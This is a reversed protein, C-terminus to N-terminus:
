FTKYKVPAVGIRGVFAKAVLDNERLFAVFEQAKKEGAIHIQKPMDFIHYNGEVECVDDCKPTHTYGNEDLFGQIQDLYEQKVIDSLKLNGLYVNM